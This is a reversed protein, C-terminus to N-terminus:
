SRRVTVIVTQGSAPVAPTEIQWGSQRLRSVLAHLREAPLVSLALTLQGQSFSIQHLSGAPLDDLALAVPEIMPLFDGSDVHGAAHRAEVLKRQMQLAPDAIAVAEPFTGRFRTEMRQGLRQQASALVRWDALLAVAHIVLALGALAAASRLRRAMGIWIPSRHREQGLCVGANIPAHRWDWRGGDRIEIGLIQHWRSLDPLADATTGYLLLADPRTNDRQAHELSRCLALPPQTADGLDTSTAMLRTSRLVGERGDWALSWTGPQWPQLLGESHLEFATIGVAALAVRWHQLGVRDIVALTDDDGDRGLWVVQNAEPEGVLQEEVAYALLTGAARRASAPLRAHVMLVQTAPLVLAVRNAGRPLQALTGAGIRTEAAPDLLAWQCHGSIDRLSIHIRLLTM